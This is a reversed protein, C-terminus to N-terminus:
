LGEVREQGCVRARLTVNLLHRRAARLLQRLQKLLDAAAVREGLGVLDTLQPTGPVGCVHVTGPQQQALSQSGVSGGALGDTGLVRSAVSRWGMRVACSAAATLHLASSCAASSNAFFFAVM